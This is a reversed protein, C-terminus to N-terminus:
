RVVAEDKSLSLILRFLFAGEDQAQRLVLSRSEPAFSYGGEPAFAGVNEPRNPGAGAV